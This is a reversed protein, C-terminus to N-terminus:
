FLNELFKECLSDSMGSTQLISRINEWEMNQGTLKGSVTMLQGDLKVDANLIVGKKIEALISFNKSDYNFGNSLTYKPSYGLNWQWTGFKSEVLDSISAIDDASLMYEQTGNQGIVYDLFERQFDAVDANPELYKDINSVTSRVSKVAKHSYNLDITELSSKLEDLKSNFLITGHHLTRKGQQYVHEANGSFKKGEVLLDNRDSFEAPVGKFHLFDMVPALFSRFAVSKSSDTFNRIISFNINGEDHFVTGGGSLRRAVPISNKYLFPYNCEALANQHKGVVVCPDNIYLFFIEDKFNKLFYEEAALNFYPSKEPSILCIM